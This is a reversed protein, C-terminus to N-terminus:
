QYQKPTVGYKSKFAQIFSSLNEYGIELYIDSARKQEQKLLLSAYELRQDQFWKIPSKKYQKVFERKFSSLSMNSLFALERLSLKKYKNGEVVSILKRSQQNTESLMSYLFNSGEKEILFLMIEEFKVTMLKKQSKLPMKSIEIVSRVYNRIFEDYPFSYISQKNLKNTPNIDFKRIFQLIAENSFFLLISRYSRNNLSVKETMLCHGSQMLLFETNDISISGDGTIVGKKGEMLFSFTNKSLNILQKNSSKITRYDYIRVISNDMSILSDPITIKKM